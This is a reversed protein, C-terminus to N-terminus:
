ASVLSRIDEMIIDYDFGSEGSYMRYVQGDPSMLYFRVPHMIDEQEPLEQIPANFSELIVRQMESYSYGTIFDWSEFDVGYAEGYDELREPTDFDPDVTFGVIHVDLDEEIIGDQLEKMNPTMVNCVGPCRTFITKALWWEGEYTENTITEGFQNVGEFDVVQWPDDAQTVDIVPSGASESADEYLFSCGAVMIGTMMFAFM